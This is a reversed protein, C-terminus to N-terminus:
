PSSPNVAEFRFFTWTSHVGKRDAFRADYTRIVERLAAGSVRPVPAAGIGHLTRLLDLASPFVFSRESTETRILTLGAASLIKEWEDPARWQLPSAQPLIQTLETLTPAAFLGSLVRGGPALRTKWHRLLGAPDNPWQLFSSSFIWKVSVDPLDDAAALSWQAQPQGASGHAIMAASADTAWFEGPWPLVHRTFFGTGAAIEIARGARRRPLWEALWQAMERQIFGFSDYRRAAQDFSKM